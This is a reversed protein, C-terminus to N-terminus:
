RAATKHLLELLRRLAIRASPFALRHPDLDAPAALEYGAVDDGAKIASIDDAECVFYVDTTKYVIGAYRYDNPASTLYVLNSIRLNFEEMVERRLADEATEGFEIFGGPLALMGKQPEKARVGLVLKGRHLLLAGTASACNFFFTFGCAPCRIAREGLRSLSAAGCRPCHSFDAFPTDRPFGSSPIM